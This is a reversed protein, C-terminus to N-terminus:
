LNQLRQIHKRGAGDVRVLAPTVQIEFSKRFNMVSVYTSAKGFAAALMSNSHRSRYRIPAGEKVDMEYERYLAPIERRPDMSWTVHYHRGDRSVDEGGVRVLFAEVGRCDTAFGYVEATTVPRLDRLSDADYLETIHDGRREPFAWGQVAGYLAVRADDSLLYCSYSQDM